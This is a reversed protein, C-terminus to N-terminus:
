RGRRSGEGKLRMKVAEWYRELQRIDMHRMDQGDAAVTKELDRFRTEFRRNARRLATEPKVGLHRALNVCSLLLDGMEEEIQDACDEERAQYLEEFEEEVKDFVDDTETWDFGLSAARKQLKASRDLAPLTRPVDDMVSVAAGSATSEREANKIQEWNSEVQEPTLSTPQGFSDLTGDPFVHPHRHLLKELVGRAVDDFDSWGQEDAIRAYFVVQFLLDGLEDRVKERAGAEVADVLEYAEELTHATLTQMSQSRDWQCGQDPHRLNDMLQLLRAVHTTSRPSSPPNNDPRNM